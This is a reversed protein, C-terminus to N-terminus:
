DKHAMEQEHRKRNDIIVILNNYFERRAWESILPCKIQRCEDNM